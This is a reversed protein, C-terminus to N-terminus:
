TSGLVSSTCLIVTIGRPGRARDVREGQGLLVLEQHRALLEAVLERHEHSAADGLLDDRAVDRRPGAVVDLAGRLDRPLHDGLVAHTVRDPGAREALLLALDEETAVPAGRGVIGVCHRELDVRSTRSSM